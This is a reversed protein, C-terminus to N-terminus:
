PTQEAARGTAGYSMAKIELGDKGPAINEALGGANEESLDEDSFLRSRLFFLLVPSSLTTLGILFWLTTGDCDKYAPCYHELAHGSFGGILGTALFMPVTAFGSYTAERGVPAVAVSYEYLKPSWIAEGVSLTLVFCFCMIHSTEVALFFPSMGSITAGLMFINSYTFKFKAIVLTVIPTLILICLPNIILYWEFESDPGFSRLFYKPFTADLHRFVSKVGVFILVLVLFRQFRRQSLVDRMIDMSSEAQRQQLTANSEDSPPSRMAFALLLQLLAAGFASGAIVRWISAKGTYGPMDMDAELSRRSVSIALVALVASVNMVVYFLSFGMARNRPTTYRRVGVMLAPMTLATGIPKVTILAIVVQQSSTAYAIGGYGIVLLASGAILAYRCGIKDTLVGGFLCVFGMVFGHAGYVWGATSDSMGFDETLYLVLVNFLAFYSFSMLAKLMYVLWLEYPSESLANVGDMFDESECDSAQAADGDADKDGRVENRVDNPANDAKKETDM